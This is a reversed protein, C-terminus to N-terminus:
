VFSTQGVHVTVPAQSGRPRLRWQLISQIYVYHRVDIFAKVLINSWKVGELLVAYRFTLRSTFSHVM